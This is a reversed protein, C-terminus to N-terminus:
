SQNMLDIKLFEHIQKASHLLSNPSGASDLQIIRRKRDELTLFWRLSKQGERKVSVRKLEDLSRKIKRIPLFALATEKTFRNGVRDFHIELRLLLFGLHIAALVAPIFYIPNEFFTNKLFFDSFVQGNLAGGQILIMNGLLLVWMFLFILDYFQLATSKFFRLHVTSSEKQSFSRVRHIPYSTKPPKRSLWETLNKQLTKLDLNYFIKGDKALSITGEEESVILCVADTAETLGIAARHRTGLNKDVDLNFTIPFIVSCYAVRGNRIIVGGDHTLAEKSFLATFLEKKVDSNVLTGSQALKSLNDNREFAILAGTKTHSLVQAGSLTENITHVINSQKKKSLRRFFYFCLRRLEPEFIILILVISISNLFQADLHFAMNEESLNIAGIVSIVLALFLLEWSKQQRLVWTIRFSGVLLVALSMGVKWYIPNVSM